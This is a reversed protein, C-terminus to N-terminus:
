EVLSVDGPHPLVTFSYGFTFIPYFHCSFSYSKSKRPTKYPALAIHVEGPFSNWGAM